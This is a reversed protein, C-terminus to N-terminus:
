SANYLSNWVRIMDQLIAKNPQLPAKNM